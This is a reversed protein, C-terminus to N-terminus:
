EECLLYVKMKPTGCYNNAKISSFFKSKSYLFGEIIRPYNTKKKKKIFIYLHIM